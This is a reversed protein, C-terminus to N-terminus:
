NAQFHSLINLVFAQEQFALRDQLHWTTEILRRRKPDDKAKNVERIAEQIRFLAKELEAHAEPDDYVPTHRCLDEFLLPYKCVRQIPKILLDSFTLAKRSSAERNNESALSKSLAEIGREYAQWAPMNKCTSTLDQSMTTWHAGYEEYAFFRKMHKNFIRAVNGATKTDAVLGIPRHDMSKGIDLSHRQKRSFKAEALRGPIIDASHFRIHKAKTIPYSEHRASQTYDAHPIGKLLEDLLDEHLQLIQTVNQQISVRTQTSLSPVSALLSFYDNVLIKMDGIYSEESAILEELIKRRQLSRLWAGEDIIPGANSDMSVRAESFGSSRNEVRLRTSFGGRQSCPALSASALTISASRIATVFGLSSSMSESKRRRSEPINPLPTSKIAAENDSNDFSWREVRSDHGKRRHGHRKRLSSMWRKFPPPSVEITIPPPIQKINKDARTNNSSLDEPLPIELAEGFTTFAEPNTDEPEFTSEGEDLFSSHGCLEELEELADAEFREAEELETEKRSSTYPLSTVDTAWNAKGLTQFSPRPETSTPDQQHILDLLSRPKLGPPKNENGHLWSGAQLATLSNLSTASINRPALNRLSGNAHDDVLPSCPRLYPTESFSRKLPSQPRLSLVYAM